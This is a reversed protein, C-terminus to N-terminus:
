PRVTPSRLTAAAASDGFVVCWFTDEVGPTCAVGIGMEKYHGTLIEKRHGPSNMWGKVITDTQTMPHGAKWGAAIIEGACANAGPRPHAIQGDPRTEVFFIQDWEVYGANIARNIHHHNCTKHEALSRAEEELHEMKRNRAMWEAHFQAAKELKKDYACPELGHQTRQANIRQFVDRVFPADQASAARGAVLLGAMLMVMLSVRRACNRGEPRHPAVAM